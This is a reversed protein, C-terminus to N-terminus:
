EKFLHTLFEEETFKKANNNLQYFDPKNDYCIEETITGTIKEFLGAPFFYGGELAHYFLSSGCNKCFGREAWPSSSYRHVSEEGKLTFQDSALEQLSLFPSGFFKQCMHCHCVTIEQSIDPITIQVKGCLCSGSLKM